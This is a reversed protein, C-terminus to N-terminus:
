AGASPMEAPRWCPDSATPWDTAAAARMALARWGSFGSRAHTRAHAGTNNILVRSRGGAAVWLCVWECQLVHQASRSLRWAVDDDDDSPFVDAQCQRTTHQQNPLDLVRSQGAIRARSETPRCATKKVNATESSDFPLSLSTSYQNPNLGQQKTCLEGIQALFRCM